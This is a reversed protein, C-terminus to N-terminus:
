HGRCGGHRGADPLRARTPTAPCGRLDGGDGALRGRRGDPVRREHWWAPTGTWRNSRPVAPATAARSPPTPPSATPASATAPSPLMDAGVDLCAAIVPGGLDRWGPDGPLLALTAAPAGPALVVRRGFLRGEDTHLEISDRGPALALARTGPRVQVKRELAAVISSFGGDVYLVGDRSAAQLQGIVAGASLQELDRSYTSIRVLSAMLARVDARLDLDDLWERMSNATLMSADIRPLRAL